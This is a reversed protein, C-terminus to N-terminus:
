REELPEYRKLFSMYFVGSHSLHFNNLLVELLGVKKVRICQKLEWLPYPALLAMQFKKRISNSTM